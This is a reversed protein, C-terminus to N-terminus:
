QPLPEGAEAVAQQPNTYQIIHLRLREMVAKVVAVKQQLVQLILHLQLVAVVQVTHVQVVTQM